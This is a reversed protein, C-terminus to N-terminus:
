ILCGLCRHRKFLLLVHYVWITFLQIWSIHLDISGYMYLCMVGGLFPLGLILSGLCRDGGRLLWFMIISSQLFFYEVLISTLMDMRTYVCMQPFSSGFITWFRLSLKHSIVSWLCFLLGHRPFTTQQVSLLLSRTSSRWEVQKVAVVVFGWACWLLLLWLSPNSKKGRYSCLHLTPM